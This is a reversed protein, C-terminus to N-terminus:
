GKVVVRGVSCVGFWVVSFIIILSRAMYKTLYKKAPASGPISNLYPAKNGAPFHEEFQLKWCHDVFCRSLSGSACHM